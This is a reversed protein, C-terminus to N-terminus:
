SAEVCLLSTYLASVLITISLVNLWNTANTFELKWFTVLM